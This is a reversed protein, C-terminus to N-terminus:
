AHHVVVTPTLIYQIYLQFCHAEMRETKARQSWQRYRSAVAVINFFTEEHVQFLSTHLFARVPLVPMKISHRCKRLTYGEALIAVDIHNTPM